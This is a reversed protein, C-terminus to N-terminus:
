RGRFEGLPASEVVFTVAAIGAHRIADLAISVDRYRARRDVQLYIRKEAGKALASSIRNEIDKGHPDVATKSFYIAGDRTVSMRMADERVAGLLWRSHHSTPLEPLFGHHSNVATVLMMIILLTLVVTGYPMSVDIKTFPLGRRRALMRAQPSRLRWISSDTM